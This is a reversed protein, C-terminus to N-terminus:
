PLVAHAQLVSFGDPLQLTAEWMSDALTGSAVTASVVMDEGTKPVVRLAVSASSDVPVNTCHIQVVMPNPNTLAVDAPFDYGSRPDAPVGQDHVQVIEVTPAGAPLWITAPDGPLDASHAPTSDVISVSNAEARIRGIAGAGGAGAGNTTGGLARLSGNATISDAILRIGGGSGGGGSRNALHIANGGNATILGTPSITISTQSAILIAGGGAGAGSGAGTTHGAGGGSGGILPLIRASGYEIGPIATGACSPWGCVGDTGYGAGSGARDGSDMRYSAGGPGSGATGEVGPLVARAAGSFGGPGPISRAVLVNDGNAGNLNVTGSITVSGSVLWVVPAGSPHNLFTVTVGGPITVSSFRFVVAWQEEDYVGTLPTGTDPNADNWAGDPSDALNVTLSSLPNFDGDSDDAGPVTIQAMAGSTLGLAALLLTALHPISRSM